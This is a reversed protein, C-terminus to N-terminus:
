SLVWKDRKEYLFTLVTQMRQLKDAEHEDLSLYDMPALIGTGDFVGEGTEKQDCLIFIEELDQIADMVNCLRMQDSAILVKSM